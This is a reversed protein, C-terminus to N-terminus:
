GLAAAIATIPITVTAPFNTVTYANLPVYDTINDGSVLRVSTKWSSVNKSPASLTVEVNSTAINAYKILTSKFIGRVYPAETNSNEHINMNLKDSDECSFVSFVSVLVLLKIKNKM